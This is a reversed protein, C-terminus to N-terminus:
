LGRNQRLYFVIRDRYATRVQQVTLGSIDAMRLDVTAKAMAVLHEQDNMIQDAISQVEAELESNTPPPPSLDPADTADLTESNDTLDIIRRSM